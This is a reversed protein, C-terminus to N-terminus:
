KAKRDRYLWFIKAEHGDPPKSPEDRDSPASITSLYPLFLLAALPALLTGLVVSLGFRQTPPFSSLSFILFGASIMVTSSLIPQWLQLRANKWAEWETLKEVGGYRKAFILMYLMADVGMGIALNSAPTCIIDLPMRFYGAIGLMAIPILGLSFLLASTVQISRSLMWAIAAFLLLLFFIGSVLSETLLKALQGQLLYDGGVMEPVFGHKEVIHKLREVNQLCEIKKGTERMGMLFLTKKRDPTIFYTAIKGFRPKELIQLLKENSFLFSFFPRKAEALIVALSLVSGVAPDKELATQLQWMRRHTERTNLKGHKSDRIVIKLPSSGENKDIYDTGQRIESNKKFYLFLSPDTNLHRIGIPALMALLALLIVIWGQRKQLFAAKWEKSRKVRKRKALSLFWPYVGYAMSFAVVTGISGSIGLHRMPTAKVFYLTLFGLLTTFMSWFSAQFTMQIADRVQDLPDRQESDELHKWNFTIFVIPSLTLVFVMTTLNATLPGISIGLFHALILTIAGSNMCAILMGLLIVPSRFIFLQVISFVIFSALSFTRLDQFLNRRILEVIYPVGSVLVKFGPKTFRDRIKEAKPVMKETPADKLFVSMFTSREDKAILVRSWLPSKLADKLNRPGRSLSQVSDVEPLAAFALTLSEIDKFYAPSRINGKVSVILQPPEPFIESILRNTRVQPDKDSFFFNREVQPKLDVINSFLVLVIATFGICLPVALPLMVSTKGIIIKWRFRSFESFLKLVISRFFSQDFIM